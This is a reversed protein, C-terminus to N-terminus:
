RGFKKNLEETTRVGDIYSVKSVEAMAESQEDTLNLAKTLRLIWKWLPEDKKHM